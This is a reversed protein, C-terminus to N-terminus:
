NCVPKITAYTLLDNITQVNFNSLGIARTYGFKVCEELSKWFEHIPHPGKPEHILVLDFYTLGSEELGSKM